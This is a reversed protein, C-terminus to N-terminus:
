LVAPLYTHCLAVTRVAHLVATLARCLICIPACRWTYYWKLGNQFFVQLENPINPGFMGCGRLRTAPGVAEPGVARLSTANSIAMSAQSPALASSAPEWPESVASLEDLATARFADTDLTSKLAGAPTTGPTATAGALLALLGWLVSLKGNM